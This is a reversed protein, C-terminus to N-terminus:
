SASETSLADTNAPSSQRGVSQGPIQIYLLEQRTGAKATTSMLTVQPVGIIALNNNEIDHFGINVRMVVM